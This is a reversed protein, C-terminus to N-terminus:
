RGAGALPDASDDAAGPGVTDTSFSGHNDPVTALRRPKFERDNVLGLVFTEIAVFAFVFAPRVASRLDLRECLPLRFLSVRASRHVRDIQQLLIM